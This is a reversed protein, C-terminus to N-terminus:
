QREKGVEIVRIKEKMRTDHNIADLLTTDERARRDKQWRPGKAATECWGSETFHNERVWGPELIPTVLWNVATCVHHHHKAGFNMQHEEPKLGSLFGM